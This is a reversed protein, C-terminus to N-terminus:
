CRPPFGPASLLAEVATNESANAGLHLAGGSGHGSVCEAISRHQSSARSVFAESM